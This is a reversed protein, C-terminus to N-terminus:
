LKRIKFLETAVSVRENENQRETESQKQSERERESEDERELIQPDGALMRALMDRTEADYKKLHEVLEDVTTIEGPRRGPRRPPRKGAALAKKAM